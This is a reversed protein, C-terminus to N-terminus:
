IVISDVLVVIAIAVVHEPGEEVVNAQRLRIPESGGSAQIRLVLSVLVCVTRVFQRNVIGLSNWGIRDNNVVRTIIDQGSKEQYPHLALM